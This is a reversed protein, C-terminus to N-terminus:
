AGSSFAGTNPDVWGPDNPNPLWQQVDPDKFYGPAGNYAVDAAEKGRKVLEIYASKRKELVDKQQLRNFESRATNEFVSAAGTPPIVGSQMVQSATPGMVPLQKADEINYPTVPQRPPQLSMTPM